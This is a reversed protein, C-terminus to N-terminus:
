DMKTFCAGLTRKNGIDGGIRLSVFQKVFQQDSDLYIETHTAITTTLMICFVYWPANFCFLKTKVATFSPWYIRSAATLSNISSNWVPIYAFKGEYKETSILIRITRYLVTMSNGCNQAFGDIQEKLFLIYQWIFMIYLITEMSNWDLAWLWVLNWGMHVVLEM